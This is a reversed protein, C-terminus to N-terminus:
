KQAVFILERNEATAEQDSYDGYIAIDDFGAVQLMLLLENKFYMLGTLSLEDQAVLRGDQWKEIRVQSTFSQELPNLDIRRFWTRYESGDVAHKIEPGEPWPEPLSGRNEKLWLPWVDTITYEADVNFILAGGDNLHEYCRILTEQDKERSGALGLSGCIYILRYRRPLDLGDMPQNYLTPEYGAAVAKQRCHHLMDASVDCGEIDVGSKLLPVLLRGTGCGLDLVPEGFREIQEQFYALEPTDLNFEAWKEAMLGYHWVNSETLKETEM